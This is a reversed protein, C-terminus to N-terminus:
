ISLAFRQVRPSIYHTERLRLQKPNGIQTQKQVRALSFWVVSVLHQSARLFIGTGVEAYANESTVFLGTVHGSDVPIKARSVGDGAVHPVNYPVWFATHACWM